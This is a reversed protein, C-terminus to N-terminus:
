PTSEPANCAAWPCDACRFQWRWLVPHECTGLRAEQGLQFLRREDICPGSPACRSEDGLYIRTLLAPRPPALRALRLHDDLTWLDTFSDREAV